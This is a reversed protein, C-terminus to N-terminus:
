DRKTRPGDEDRRGRLPPSQREPQSQRQERPQPPPQSREERQVPREERQVPREERQAPRERQEVRERPEVRERSMARERQEERNRQEMQRAAAEDRAGHRMMQERRQQDLDRERDRTEESQRRFAERQQDAQAERAQQGADRPHQDAERRERVQSQRERDDRVRDSLARRDFVSTPSRQESQLTPPRDERPREEHSRETREARDPRMRREDNNAQERDNHNQGRLPLRPSRDPAAQAVDRRERSPRVLRASTQPPDRRAVVQRDVISPPPRRVSGRLPAGLRSERVPDIRPPTPTVNSRALDRENVRAVHDRVRGGSTFAGRSAVILSGPVARNRYRVDRGRNEYMERVFIRSAVTNSLNVREFYRHSYRRYPVYIERPGLPFWSVSLGPTGVWAVLAPAYVARVHRPGPVWCWRHRIHAWRGYHFPAYGWPSDDIWTWGWPSVWVWRGYRYPSWDAAVRRPTWVYGYEPESSWSGHDDLDEYGTVEPSVYRSAPSSALRQLHREREMSWNDFDDPSGLTGWDAVVEDAGRFSVKQESHVLLTEVTGFAEAEGDGIKVTTVDGADNVEVRYSGPRLISLAINPTDIEIQERGTLERVDLIMTGATIRMQLTDDDLNLFSFGTDGDLRVVSQSVQIEARAGREAWLKDGTTLPRNLMAPAWEDEGIPQLSVEGRILSLRAARDPPDAEAPEVDQARALGVLLCLSLTIFARIPNLAM